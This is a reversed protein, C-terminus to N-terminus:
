HTNTTNGTNGPALVARGFGNQKSPKYYFRQFVSPSSWDAANLIDCTTVGANSAATVAAGRVSHAKFISTDIGAKELISRLWRAITSSSAVNHPRITTLFLPNSGEEKRFEKTRGEYARLTTVPCLLPNATFAPFFEAVPKSQRSQKALKTPQFSVGEPLYKRFRLDLHSLDASRSPRTLALLMVTKHTLDTLSLADNEGRSEIYSTVEATRTASGSIAWVALQPVVEPLSDEHTTTILDRRPPILLPVEVLMELLVPYWGQAKWVPAVLVLEAQQLRTQALVGGILNWPPNAYAKLEAWDLTFADTAIAMPDPRWSAFQRLQCTLRSAFLDVELPGWRQNIQRFVTPCLKWDTRDKMVRSEDDAITNLVGALHQAKLLISREMCWLWLEKALNNLQPSITGGLKNIYTLALMSDMKLHITLNTKAALLELCNIHMSREEPTWPGGTRVGNCVAGGRKSADTEITLSSNHAILSRGNWQTFHDRWWELEERAEKTLVTTSSYNQDEQLAERLCTQLNRYYLPAMPIAQTAANMKGILRSLTLASVTDSQLVKGAEARIKKIKEGPLKLEMTKSNVTFGVFEIEQSPDLESKPHNIVLGLNELLYVVATVHDKLLSETEAMVLIDDIYIILRLGIERLAAVVPRTTKTFVWPVSSLGFPLCNFQYTQDKWQFKLFERDEQAIPIMFYADKLDIKAMWDGARLLDKLMHIGEMKFHETKVSQNLRKLNIVPRQRGDKKQVLFMQSYFGEPNQPIAQKELMNLVETQMCEEERETFTLQPPRGRQNPRQLFEIRYGQITQLVWEDQTIAQWNSLFHQVRGALPVNRLAIETVMNKVGKSQLAQTASSQGPSTFYEYVNCCTSIAMCASDRTSAPSDHRSASRAGATATEPGTRKRRRIRGSAAEEPM